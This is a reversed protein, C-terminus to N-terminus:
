IDPPLGPTEAHDNKNIECPLNFAKNEVMGQPCKNIECMKWVFINIEFFSWGLEGGSWHQLPSGKAGVFDM